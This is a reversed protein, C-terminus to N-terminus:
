APLAAAVAAQVFGKNLYDRCARPLPRQGSLGLAACQGAGRGAGLGAGGGGGGGGGDCWLLALPLAAPQSQALACASAARCCAGALAVWKSIDDLHDDFDALLMHAQRKVLAMLAERLQVLSGPQVALRPGPGEPNVRRWGVKSNIEKLALQLTQPPTTPPLLPHASSATQL